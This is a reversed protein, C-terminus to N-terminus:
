VPKFALREAAQRVLPTLIHHLLLVIGPTTLLWALGVHLIASWLVIVAHGVRQALLAMGAPVSLREPRARAVRERRSCTM